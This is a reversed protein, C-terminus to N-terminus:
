QINYEADDADYSTKDHTLLINGNEDVEVNTPDFAYKYNQLAGMYNDGYVTLKVATADATVGTLDGNALIHLAADNVRVEGLRFTANRLTVSLSAGSEIEGAFLGFTGEASRCNVKLFNVTVGDFVVNEIKAEETIRGFLGGYTASNASFEMSINSFTVSGNVATISGTFEGSSFKAPWTVNMFDLDNYIEYIGDPNANDAFQQATEIKYREGEEVVVYINQVRNVPLAHEVDLSGAHEFSGEIEQTCEADLYAKSFTTGSIKPFTYGDHISYNMAGDKWDPLWITDKDAKSADANVTKYDFSSTSYMTWVGNEQYYYNFEYYPVWGAYLTMEVKEKSDAPYAIADNEFDWYDSYNYAPIAETGGDTSDLSDAYYYVGDKEVIPKGDESLINGDDDKKLERTQYWGAFFHNAFTLTVNDSGGTPRQPSTPELLYINVNGNGDAQYIDPNFMDMLNVGPRNLFLGGNADYTVSIRSGQSQYEEVATKERCASLGLCLCVASALSLVLTLKKKM